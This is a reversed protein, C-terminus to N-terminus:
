PLHAMIERAMRNYHEISALSNETLEFSIAM